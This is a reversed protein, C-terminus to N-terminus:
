IMEQQEPWSVIALDFLGFCWEAEKKNIIRKDDRPTSCGHSSLTIGILNSRGPLALVRLSLRSPILEGM